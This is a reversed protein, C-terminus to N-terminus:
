IYGISDIRVCWANTPTKCHDHRQLPWTRVRRNAKLLPKAHNCSSWTPSESASYGFVLLLLSGNQNNSFFQISGLFFVIITSKLTQTYLSIQWAEIYPEISQTKYDFSKGVKLHKIWLGNSLNGKSALCSRTSSLHHSAKSGTRSINSDIGFREETTKMHGVGWEWIRAGGRGGDSQCPYHSPNLM